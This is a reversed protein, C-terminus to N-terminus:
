EYVIGMLLIPGLFANVAVACDLRYVSYQLSGGLIIERPSTGYGLRGSINKVPVVSWFLFQGYTFNEEKEFIYEIWQNAPLKQRIGIRVIQPIEPALQRKPTLRLNHFVATLAASGTLQFHSEIGFGWCGESGYNKIRLHYYHLLIGYESRNFRHSFRIKVASERYLADGSTNLGLSLYNIQSRHRLYVEYQNFFSYYLPSIGVARCSWNGAPAVPPLLLDSIDANEFAANLSSFIVILTFFYRM